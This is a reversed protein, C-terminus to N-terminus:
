QKQKNIETFKNILRIVYVNIKCIKESYKSSNLEHGMNELMTTWDNKDIEKVKNMDKSIINTYNDIEKQNNYLYMYKNYESLDGVKDKNIGIYLLICISYYTIISYILQQKEIKLYKYIFDIYILIVSTISQMYLYKVVEIKEKDKEIMGATTRICNAHVFKSLIDYINIIDERTQEKSEMIESFYQDWNEIVEKKLEIPKINNKIKKYEEIIQPNYIVNMSFLMNEFISRLLIMSSVIHGNMCLEFADELETSLHTILSIIDEDLNVKNVLKNINARFEDIIIEKINKCIIYIDDM